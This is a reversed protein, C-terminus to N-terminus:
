ILGKEIMETRELEHCPRSIFNVHHGCPYQKRAKGETRQIPHLEFTLDSAEVRDDWEVANAEHMDRHKKNLKMNGWM